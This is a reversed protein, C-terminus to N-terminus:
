GLDRRFSFLSRVYLVNSTLLTVGNADSDLRPFNQTWLKQNKRRGFAAHDSQGSDCYTM